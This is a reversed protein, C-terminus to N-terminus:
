IDSNGTVKRIAIIAKDYCPGFDIKKIYKQWFHQM